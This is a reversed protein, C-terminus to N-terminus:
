EHLDAYDWFRHLDAGTQLTLTGRGDANVTYSGGTIPLALSTTGAANVDEVGTLIKGTGDATFSGVRALPTANVGGSFSEGNTAFAYQGNLSAVSYKGVPPPPNVTGNGSCAASWLVAAVSFAFLLRKMACRAASGKTGTDDLICSNTLFGKTNRVAVAQTGKQVIRAAFYTSDGLALPEGAIRVSDGPNLTFHAAQLVKANGLHVDVQGSATQLIVHAGMPLTASASDFKVVTGLLFVERSM